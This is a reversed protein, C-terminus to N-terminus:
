SALLREILRSVEQEHQAVDEDQKAKMRKGWGITLAPGHYVRDILESVEEDDHLDPIANVAEWFARGDLRREAYERVLQAIRHKLAKDV